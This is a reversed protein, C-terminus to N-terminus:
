LGKRIMLAFMNLMFVVIAGYFSLVTGGGICKSFFVCHHDDNLICVNCM